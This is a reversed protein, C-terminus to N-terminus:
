EVVWVTTRVGDSRLRRWFAKGDAEIRIGFQGPVSRECFTARTCVRDDPVRAPLPARVCGHVRRSTHAPALIERGSLTLEGEEESEDTGASDRTGSGGMAETYPEYEGTVGDDDGVVRESHITAPRLRFGDCRVLLQRRGHRL